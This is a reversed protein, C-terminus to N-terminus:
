PVLFMLGDKKIFKKKSYNQQVFIIDQFVQKSGRKMLPVHIRRNFTAM